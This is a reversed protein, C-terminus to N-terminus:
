NKKRGRSTAVKKNPEAMFFKSGPFNDCLSFNDETIHQGPFGNEGASKKGFFDAAKFAVTSDSHSNHQSSNYPKRESGTCM